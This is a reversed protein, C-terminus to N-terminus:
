AAAVKKRHADAQKGLARGALRITEAIAARTISGNFQKIVDDWDRGEALLALVGDVMVRTGRYTLRGHCVLPDSVIYRGFTKTKM